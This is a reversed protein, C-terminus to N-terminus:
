LYYISNLADDDLMINFRKLTENMVKIKTIQKETFLKGLQQKRENMKSETPDDLARSLLEFSILKLNKSILGTDLEADVVSKLKKNEIKSPIVNFIPLRNEINDYVGDMSGIMNQFEPFIKIISAPGVQDVGDIDDGTDGWIAKAVNFYSDDINCDRKLFKTMVSGPTILKKIKGNKTFAFTNENITQWMDKDNSYIMNLQHGDGITTRRLLYYPIFDCELNHMRIVHINPMANCAKEILQFNSHLIAFFEEQQDVDIGYVSSIKRSFKYNKDINLHYVSHGTEFFIYFNVTVGRKYAWMKHFSLFTILSSFISTDVYLSSRSSEIINTVIDKIYIGRLVNKLDIFLNITTPNDVLSRAEDLVSYTPYYSLIQSPQM